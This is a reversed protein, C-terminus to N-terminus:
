KILTAFQRAVQDGNVGSFAYEALNVQPGNLDNFVQNLQAIWEDPPDLVLTHGDAPSREVRYKCVLSRMQTIADHEGFCRYSLPGMTPVAPGPNPSTAVWALVAQTGGKSNFVKGLPLLTVDSIKSSVYGLISTHFPFGKANIGFNVQTLQLAPNRICSIHWGEFKGHISRDLTVSRRYGMLNTTLDNAANEAFPLRYAREAAPNEMRFWDNVITSAFVGPSSISTYLGYTEDNMPGHFGSLGGEAVNPIPCNLRFRRGSDDSFNDIGQLYLALRHPVAADVPMHEKFASVADRASADYPTMVSLKKWWLVMSAYYMFASRPVNRDFYKDAKAYQDYTIDCLDYFGADDTCFDHTPIQHSFGSMGLCTFADLDNPDNKPTTPPARNLFRPKIAEELEQESMPVPPHRQKIADALPDGQRGPDDVAIAEKRPKFTFKKKNPWKNKPKPALAEARLNPPNPANPM